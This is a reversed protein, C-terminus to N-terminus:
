KRLYAFLADFDGKNKKLISVFQSRIYLSMWVGQINIDSVKYGGGRRAVMWKIPSPKREDYYVINSNVIVSQGRPRSGVVQLNRGAFQRSYTAFLRATFDEVLRQFERARSAPLQKRYPGLSSKPVSHFNAYRRLLTKFQRVKQAKSGPAKATAVAHEGAKKAYLEAPTLAAAPTSASVIGLLTLTVVLLAALDSCRNFITTGSLVAASNRHM